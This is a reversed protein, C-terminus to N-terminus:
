APRGGRRRRGGRPRPPRPAPVADPAATRGAPPAAPSAALVALAPISPQFFYDGGTTTVFRQMLAVHDPRGGPLGFTSGTRRVAGIVPDTGAGRVPFDPDNAWRRQVFEFQREISSQYCLFLLGRDDPFAPDAVGGADLSAGFPIGRRLLRHTQTDDEGGDETPQDRPYMKRIHAAHPTVDGHPDDEAFEFASIREPALLSADAIGPDVPQEGVAALAVGSRYRGMLKAGALDETIGQDTALDTMFGRFGAVDQRLRRFVLYSGDVTWDPGSTAAPGAGDGGGPGAQTAYGLVFEGPWLLDQGPVGQNPDAPNQPTTVGRVGPQSIGDRFGFHEHGPQDARVDGRQVHVVSLGNDTALRRHDDIATDVVGADNAAVLVVAHFPQRYPEPWTTPDSPGRDGLVDSRRRMGQRFAEPFSRLETDPRGLAALGAHTFAVNVLAGTTAALRRSSTISPTLAALWARADSASGFTVLVFAQHTTDFGPLVNAQIADLDLTTPPAAAAVTGGGAAFADTGVALTAAAGSLGALFGRRSVSPSSPSSPGPTISPTRPHPHM